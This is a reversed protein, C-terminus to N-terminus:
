HIINQHKNHTILATLKKANALRIFEEAEKLVTKLRQLIQAFFIPDRNQLYELEVWKKQVMDYILIIDDCKRLKTKHLHLIILNSVQRFNYWVTVPICQGGYNLHIM